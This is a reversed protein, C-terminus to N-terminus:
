TKGSNEKEEEEEREKEREERERRMMREKKRRREKLSVTNKSNPTECIQRCKRNNERHIEKSRISKM